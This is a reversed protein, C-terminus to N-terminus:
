GAAAVRRGRGIPEYFSDEQKFFSLGSGTKLTGLEQSLFILIEM